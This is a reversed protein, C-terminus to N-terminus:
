DNRDTYEGWVRFRNSATATLWCDVARLSCEPRASGGQCWGRRFKNKKKERESEKEKKRVM